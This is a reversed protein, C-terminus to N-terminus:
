IGNADGWRISSMSAIARNMANISQKLKSLVLFNCDSYRLTDGAAPLVAM